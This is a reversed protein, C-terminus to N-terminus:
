KVEKKANELTSLRLELDKVLKWLVENVLDTDFEANIIESQTPERKLRKELEAKALDDYKEDITKTNEM